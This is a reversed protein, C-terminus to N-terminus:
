PAHGGFAKGRGLLRKINSYTCRQDFHSLSVKIECFATFM